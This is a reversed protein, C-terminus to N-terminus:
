QLCMNVRWMKSARAGRIPQLPTARACDDPGLRDSATNSARRRFSRRSMFWGTSESSAPRIPFPRKTWNLQVTPSSFPCKLLIQKMLYVHTSEWERYARTSRQGTHCVGVAVAVIFSLNKTAGDIFRLQTLNVYYACKTPGTTPGCPATADASPAIANILIHRHLISKSTSQAV